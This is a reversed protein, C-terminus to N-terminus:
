GYHYANARVPVRRYDLPTDPDGQALYARRLPLFTLWEHNMMGLVFFNFGLWFILPVWAQPSDDPLNDM